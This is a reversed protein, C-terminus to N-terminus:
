HRFSARRGIEGGVCPHKHRLTYWLNPSLALPLQISGDDRIVLYLRASRASEVLHERGRRPKERALFRARFM